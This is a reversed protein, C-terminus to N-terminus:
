VRRVRPRAQRPERPFRAEDAAAGGLIHDAVTQALSNRASLAVRLGQVTLQTACKGCWEACERFAWGEPLDYRKVVRQLNREYSIGGVPKGLAGCGACEISGHADHTKAM